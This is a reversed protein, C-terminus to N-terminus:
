FHKPNSVIFHISIFERERTTNFPEFSWAVFMSIFGGVSIQKKVAITGGRQWFVCVCVCVFAFLLFWCCLCNRFTQSRAKM